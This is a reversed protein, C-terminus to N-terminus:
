AFLEAIEGFSSVVKDAGMEAPSLRTYGYDVVIVPVGANRATGVDNANDGVMLAQDPNIGLRKLVIELPLGDPKRIGDLQDGGLVVEFYPSLGLGDLAGETPKQPKNSCIALRLGMAKLHDLVEFVGPYVRTQEAEHGEYHTLFQRTLASIDEEAAAAGTAQFARRVLWPAGDGVMKAVDMETVPPRDFDALLANTATTLDPVSDILTGDLDFVVAKLDAFSFNAM